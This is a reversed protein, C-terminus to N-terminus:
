GQNIEYGANRLAIYIISTISQNDHIAGFLLVYYNTHFIKIPTDQESDIPMKGM